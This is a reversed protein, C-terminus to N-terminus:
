QARFIGGRADLHTAKARRLAKKMQLRSHLPGAIVETVTQGIANTRKDTVYYQKPKANSRKPFGRALHRATNQLAGRNTDIHARIMALEELPLATLTAELPLARPGVFTSLEFACTEGSERQFYAWQRLKSPADFSLLKIPRHGPETIPHLSM